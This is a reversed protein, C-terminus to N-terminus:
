SGQPLLEQNCPPMICCGLYHLYVARCAADLVGLQLLLPRSVQQVYRLEYGKIVIRLDYVHPAPLASATTAARPPPQPWFSPLQAAAADPLSTSSASPVAAPSATSYCNQLAIM